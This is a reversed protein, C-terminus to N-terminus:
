EKAARKATRSSKTRRKTTSSRRGKKRIQRGLEVIEAFVPDNEHSGIIQKWWPLGNENPKDALLHKLRRLEKEVETLREEVSQNDPPM